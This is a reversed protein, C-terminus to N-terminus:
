PRARQYQNPWAIPQHLAAAARLPWSPNRLLERGLLVLDAQGTRIVHDAQAPETILGVAATPIGAQHRLESAFPTQYGPGLPIPGGGVAKLDPVLGGSSSDILDVGLAKLEGALAISHEVEWSGPVWDTVSLRVFLPLSSPWRDRVAAVTERLLRSRNEFSGGYADTRHNTVPSLFQHLLYGHAAHIEVVQFGAEYARQAAAAFAEIIGPIERVDIAAPVPYGTDFPLPSPAITTWAGESQTLPGDGEWPSQSSGKRGAHALQIGPVSGHDALFRTIRALPEIQADSWLGLDKPTIRGAPEVATAELLILGSGGVARAGLHVLHWDTASGDPSSYQCMPSMGIRNPFTVGRLVFPTFLHAPRTNTESSRGPALTLNEPM